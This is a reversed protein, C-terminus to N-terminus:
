FNDTAADAQTKLLELDDSDEKESNDRESSDFEVGFDLEDGNTIETQKRLEKIVNDLDTKDTDKEKFLVPKVTKNRAKQEAIQKFQERRRLALVKLRLATDPYLECLDELTGAEICMFFTQREDTLKNPMYNNLRYNLFDSFNLQAPESKITFNAKLGFFVHADGFWSGSVLQVLPVKRKNYLTCSGEKVFYVYRIKSGIQLITEDTKHFRCLM